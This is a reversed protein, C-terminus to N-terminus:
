SQCRSWMECSNPWSYCYWWGPVLYLLSTAFAAVDRPTNARGWCYPGLGGARVMPLQCSVETQSPWFDLLDINEWSTKIFDDSLIPFAFDRFSAVTGFNGIVKALSIKLIGGLKSEM